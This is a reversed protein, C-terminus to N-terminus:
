QLVMTMVPEVDHGAWEKLHLSGAWFRVGFGGIREEERGPAYPVKLPHEERAACRCHPQTAVAQDEKEQAVPLTM